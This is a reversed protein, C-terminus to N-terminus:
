SSILTRKVCCCVQVVMDSPETSKRGFKRGRPSRHYLCPTRRVKPPVQDQATVWYTLSGENQVKCANIWSRYLFYVVESDVRHHSFTRSQDKPIILVEMVLLCVSLPNVMGTSFFTRKRTLPFRKGQLLRQKEWYRCNWQQCVHLSISIM